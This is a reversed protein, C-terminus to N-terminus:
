HLPSRALQECYQQYRILRARLAETSDSDDGDRDRASLASAEDQLARMREDIARQVLQEAAAVAAEPDDVFRSKIDQWSMAAVTKTPAGDNAPDTALDPTWGDTRATM